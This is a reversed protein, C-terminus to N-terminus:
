ELLMNSEQYKKIASDLNQLIKTGDASSVVSPQNEDHSSETEPALRKLSYRIDDDNPDFTDNEEADKIQNAEFTSFGFDGGHWVVKPEGNEDLIKSHSLIDESSNSKKIDNLLKIATISNNTTRPFPSNDNGRTGELLEIETVEYSYAKTKESEDNYRKITTKVRYLRDGIEVASFARVIDKASDYLTEIKTDFDAIPSRPSKISGDELQGAPKKIKEVDVAEISYIKNGTETNYEFATIKVPVLANTEADFMLTGLRHVCEIETAEYSYAKREGNEDLIKSSGLLKEGNKKDNEVWKLLKALSISNDLTPIDKNKSNTNGSTLEIKM